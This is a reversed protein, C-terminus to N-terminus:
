ESTKNLVITNNTESNPTESEVVSIKAKKHRILPHEFHFKVRCDHVISPDDEHTRLQMVKFHYLSFKMSTDLMQCDADATFVESCKEFSM